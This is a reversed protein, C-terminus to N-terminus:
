IEAGAKKLLKEMKLFPKKDDTTNYGTYVTDLVSSKIYDMGDEPYYNINPDAGHDLLFKMLVPNGDMATFDLGNVGDHGFLNVDAGLEILKSAIEIIEKNIRKQNVKKLADYEEKGSFPGVNFISAAFVKTLATQGDKDIANVEAGEEIAKLIGKLKLSEANRFLEKNVAKIDNQGDDANLLSLLRLDTYIFYEKIEDYTFSVDKKEFSYHKKNESFQQRIKEYIEDTIIKEDINVLLLTEFYSGYKYKIFDAKESVKINHDKCVDKLMKLFYQEAKIRDKNTFKLKKIPHNDHYWEHKLYDPFKEKTLRQAIEWVEIAFSLKLNKLYLTIGTIRNGSKTDICHPAMTHFARLHYPEYNGCFRDERILRLVQRIEEILQFEDWTFFEVFTKM